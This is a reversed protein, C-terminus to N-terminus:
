EYTKSDDFKAESMEVECTSSKSVSDDETRLQKLKALQIAHLEYRAVYSEVLKFYIRWFQREKLYRPCLKFRLQALEKVKSLVLMAHREQWDTLDKRLNGSNAGDCNNGDEDPLSFNRFTEISFSKIFEILKDTIGYFKEEEEEQLKGNYDRGNDSAAASSPATTNKLKSVSRRLWSYAADM